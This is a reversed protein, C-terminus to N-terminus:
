PLQRYGAKYECWFGRGRRVPTTPEFAELIVGDYTQGHNDVLTHTKGDLFTEIQSIAGHVETASAAQLRGTQIIPRSRLGMDLILEGDVGSFSRRQLEREWPGAQVAHPGSGFLNQGDLTTM